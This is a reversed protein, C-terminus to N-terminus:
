YFLVLGEQNDINEKDIIRVNIKKVGFLSFLNRMKEAKEMNSKINDKEYFCMKLDIGEFDQLFKILEQLQTSSEISINQRDFKIYPMVIKGNNILKEKIEHCSYFENLKVSAEIATIDYMNYNINLRCWINNFVFVIEDGDQYHIEGKNEIVFNKYYELVKMKESKSNKTNEYRYYYYQGEKEIYSGYENKIETYFEYTGNLRKEFYTVEYDEVPKFILNNEGYMQVACLILIILIVYKRMDNVGSKGLLYDM